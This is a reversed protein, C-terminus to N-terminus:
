DDSVDIYKKATEREREREREREIEKIIGLLLGHEASICPDKTHSNPVEVTGSLGSVPCVALRKLRPLNDGCRVTHGM